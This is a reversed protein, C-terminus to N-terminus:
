SDVRLDLLRDFTSLLPSLLEIRGTIQLIIDIRATSTESLEQSIWIEIGKEM